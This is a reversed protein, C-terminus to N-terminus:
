DPPAGPPGRGKSRGDSPGADRPGGDPPRDGRPGSPGDPGGPGRPPREDLGAVPAGTLKIWTQAQDGDFLAIVKAIAEKFIQKFQRE